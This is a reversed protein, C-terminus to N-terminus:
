RYVIFNFHFFIFTPGTLGCFVHFNLWEGLRGVGKLFDARKRLSYVNMILMMSRGIWGLWLSLCRGPEASVEFGIIHKAQLVRLISMSSYGNLAFYESSLFCLIVVWIFIYIRISM